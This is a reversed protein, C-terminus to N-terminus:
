ISRTHVNGNARSKAIAALLKGPTLNVDLALLAVQRLRDDIVYVYSSHVLDHGPARAAAVIEYARSVAITESPSGRLFDWGPHPWLRRRLARVAARSNTRPDLEVTVIDVTRGLSGRQALVRAASLLVAEVKPCEERCDATVFTLVVTRHAAAERTLEFSGGAVDPMSFAPAAGYDTQGAPARRDAGHHLAAPGCATLLALSFFAAGLAGARSSM